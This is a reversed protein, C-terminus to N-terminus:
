EDEIVKKPRGKLPKPASPMASKVFDELGPPLEKPIQIESIIRNRNDLIIKRRQLLDNIQSDTQYLEKEIEQFNMMISLSPAMSDLSLVGTAAEKKPEKKRRLNM